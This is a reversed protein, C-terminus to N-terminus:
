YSECPFLSQRFTTKKFFFLYNRSLLLFDELYTLLSIQITNEFYGHWGSSNSQLKLFSFIVKM